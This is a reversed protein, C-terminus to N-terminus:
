EERDTVPHLRESHGARTKAQEHRSSGSQMCNPNAEGYGTRSQQEAAANDSDLM